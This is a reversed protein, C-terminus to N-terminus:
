LTPNRCTTTFSVLLGAASTKTMTKYQTSKSTDLKHRLGCKPVCDFAKSFDLYQWVWKRQNLKTILM